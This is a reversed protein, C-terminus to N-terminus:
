PETFQVIPQLSPFIYSISFGSVVLVQCLQGGQGHVRWRDSISGRCYCNSWRGPSISSFHHPTTCLTAVDMDAYRASSGATAAAVGVAGVGATGVSPFEDGERFVRGLLQAAGQPVSVM